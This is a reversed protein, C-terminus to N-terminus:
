STSLSGWCRDDSPAPTKNGLYDVSFDGCADNGQDGTAEATVTFTTADREVSLEYHGRDSTEPLAPCDEHDYSNFRTFCRELTQSVGMLSSTADARRAKRVQDVYSPYALALLIGVIAVVFMLEILTFGAAHALRTRFAISNGKQALNRLSHKFCGSLM